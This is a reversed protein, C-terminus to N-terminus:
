LMKDKADKIVDKIKGVFKEATNEFKQPDDQYIKMDWAFEGKANRKIIVSSQEQTSTEIFGGGEQVVRKTVIM